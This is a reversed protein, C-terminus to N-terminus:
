GGSDGLDPEEEDENLYRAIFGTDAVQGGSEVYFPTEALAVEVKEGSRVSAVRAGERLLAVIPTEM